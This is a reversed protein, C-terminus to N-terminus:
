TSREGSPIDCLGETYARLKDRFEPIDKRTLKMEEVLGSQPHYIHAFPLSPVGLGQHLSANTETVPVDVFVMQPNMKALKYFHPAVAQCARCYTAHFRVAVLRASEDGVATKYEALTNVTVVNSPVAVTRSTPRGVKTSKPQQQFLLDRMRREFNAPQSVPPPTALAGAHASKRSTPRSSYSRSSDAPFRRDYLKKVSSKVPPKYTMMELSFSSCEQLSMVFMIVTVFGVLSTSTRWARNTRRRSTNGTVSNAFSASAEVM